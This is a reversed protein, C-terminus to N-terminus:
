TNNSDVHSNPQSVYVKLLAESYSLALNDSPVSMKSLMTDTSSFGLRTHM